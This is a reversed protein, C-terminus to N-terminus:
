NSPRDDLNKVFSINRRRAEKKALKVLKEEDKDELTFLETGLCNDLVRTLVTKDVYATAKAFRGDM